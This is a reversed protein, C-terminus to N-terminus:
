TEKSESGVEVKPMIHFGNYRIQCREVSKPNFIDIDVSLPKMRINYM